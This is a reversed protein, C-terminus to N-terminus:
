KQETNPDSIQQFGSAPCPGHKEFKLMIPIMFLNNFCLIQPSIKGWYLQLPSFSNRPGKGLSESRVCRLSACSIANTVLEWIIDIQVACVKSWVVLNVLTLWILLVLSLPQHYDVQSCNLHSNVASSLQPLLLFFSCSRLLCIIFTFSIIHSIVWLIISIIWPFHNLLISRLHPLM